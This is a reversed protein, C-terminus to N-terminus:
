RLSFYQAFAWRDSFRELVLQALVGLVVFGGAQFTIFIFAQLGDTTAPDEFSRSDLKHVAWGIGAILGLCAPAFIKLRM